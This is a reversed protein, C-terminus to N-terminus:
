TVTVLIMGMFLLIAHVSAMISTTKLKVPIAQDPNILQQLRYNVSEDSFHVLVPTFSRSFDNKILKLLASGLALESGMRQIAFKDALLESIIKYNQYAWKTLPIFSLAQSIVQLVFIKLSDNNKQHCTEHEIVAELEYEELIEILGTSLVIYPKRFGLTFALLQHHDIVLIDLKKRNFNRNLFTTLDVHVLNFIKKKFRKLLIYQEGIKILTILVTYVILINLLISVLFQFFLYNDFLSICVNFFNKELNAGLLLHALYMGMQSWVLVAIFLSLGVVFISRKKWWIM